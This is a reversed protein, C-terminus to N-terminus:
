DRSFIEQAPLVRREHLCADLIKRRLHARVQKRRETKPLPVETCAIEAHSTNHSLATDYVAVGRQGEHKIERILNAKIEISGCNAKKDNSAVLEEARAEYEALTTHGKRDVSVGNSIRSDFVTPEVRGDDSIFKESTVVTVLRESDLVPGPSFQSVAQQECVCNPFAGGLSGWFDEGFEDRRMFHKMCDSQVSSSTRKSFIQFLVGFM